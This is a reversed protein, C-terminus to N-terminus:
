LIVLGFHEAVSVTDHLPEYVKALTSRAVQEIGIEYTHRLIIDM